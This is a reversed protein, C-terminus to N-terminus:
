KAAVGPVPEGCETCVPSTGRPYACAPCLGHRGRRWRRFALPGAVLAWILVAYFPVNVAFGPWYPRLPLLGSGPPSVSTSRIPIASHVEATTEWDDKLRIGGVMSLRPWGHAVEVSLGPSEPDDSASGPPRQSVMSWEPVNSPSYTCGVDAFRWTSVLLVERGTARAGFYFWCPEESHSRFFAGRDPVDMLAFGWAVAVNVIAGLLLFM